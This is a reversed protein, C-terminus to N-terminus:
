SSPGWEEVESDSSEQFFAVRKGRVNLTASRWDVEIDPPSGDGSSRGVDEGSIRDKWSDATHCFGVRGSWRGLEAYSWKERDYLFGLAKVEFGNRKKVTRPAEPILLVEDETGSVADEYRQFETFERADDWKLGGKCEVWVNIAGRILFDPLWGGMPHRPREWRWGYRSFLASCVAEHETDFENSKFRVKAVTSGGYHRMRNQSKPHGAM